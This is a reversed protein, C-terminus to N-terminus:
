ITGDLSGSIIQQGNPSYAVSRVSGGHGRLPEGVVTGTEADWIRITKDSPGSVIHYGDPSYRVCNVGHAHGIWKLPPSPWSPLKGTQM